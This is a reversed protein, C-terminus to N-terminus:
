RLISRGQSSMRSQVRVRISPNYERSASGIGVTNCTRVARKGNGRERDESYSCVYSQRIALCWVGLREGSEGREGREGM